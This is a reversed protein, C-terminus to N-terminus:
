LCIVVSCLAGGAKGVCRIEKYRRGDAMKGASRGPGGGAPIRSEMHILCINDCAKTWVASGMCVDCQGFMGVFCVSFM